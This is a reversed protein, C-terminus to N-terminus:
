PGSDLERVVRDVAIVAIVVTPCRAISCLQFLAETTYVCACPIEDAMLGHLSWLKGLRSVTAAHSHLISAQSLIKKTEWERRGVLGLYQQLSAFTLINDRQRV